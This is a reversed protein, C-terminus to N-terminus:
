PRKRQARVRRSTTASAGLQSGVSGDIVSEAVDTLRLNHNRAHNRLTTFSKEMDLNLREALIGKAQEITVRSDLAYQLQNALNEASHLRSILLLYATAMDALWRAARLEEESWERAEFDYLDLM